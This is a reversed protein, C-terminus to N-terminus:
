SDRDDGRDSKYFPFTMQDPHDSFYGDTASDGVVYRFLQTAVKFMKAEDDGRRKTEYCYKCIEMAVPILDEYHHKMDEWSDYLEQGTDEDLSDIIDLVPRTDDDGTWNSSPELYDKLSVSLVHKDAGYPRYEVGDLMFDTHAFPLMEDFCDGFFLQEAEAAIDRAQEETEVEEFREFYIEPLADFLNRLRYLLDYEGCLEDRSKPRKILILPDKRMRFDIDFYNFNRRSLDREIGRKLHEMSKETKREKWLRVRDSLSVFAPNEDVLKKRMEYPLDLISFNKDPEYGGGRCGRIRWNDLLALIMQHYKPHPKENARGKMEGLFGDKHLIFTLSPRVKGDGMDRRLSLVTDGVEPNATNGCHGMAEGETGCSPRKLDWWAWGNGFDIIKEPREKFELQRERKEQQIQNYHKRVEEGRWNKEWEDEESWEKYSDYDDEDYVSQDIIQKRTAVWQEELAALDDWIKRPTQRVWTYDHLAKIPMSLWHKFHHGLMTDYEELGREVNATRLDDELKKLTQARNINKALPKGGKAAIYREWRLAWVVRDERHLLGEIFRIRQIAWDPIGTGDVDFMAFMPAYKKVSELLIHRLRM